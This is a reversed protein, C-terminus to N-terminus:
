HRLGVDAEVENLESLAARFQALATPDDMIIQKVRNIFEGNESRAASYNTELTGATRGKRGANAAESKAALLAADRLSFGDEILITMLVLAFGNEEAKLVSPGGAMDEEGRLRRRAIIAVIRKLAPPTNAKNVDLFSVALDIWHPNGDDEWSQVYRLITLGLDDLAAEGLEERLARTAGKRSM